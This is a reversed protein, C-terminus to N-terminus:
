CSKEQSLSIYLYYILNDSESGFSQARTGKIQENYTLLIKGNRVVVHVILTVKIYLVSFVGSFNDSKRYM